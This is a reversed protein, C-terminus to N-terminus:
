HQQEGKKRSKPVKERLVIVLLREFLWFADVKAYGALDICM